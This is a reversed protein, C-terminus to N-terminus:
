RRHRYQATATQSIQFIMAMSMAKLWGLLQAKLYRWKNDALIPKQKKQYFSATAIFLPTKGFIFRQETSNERTVNFVRRRRRKEAM